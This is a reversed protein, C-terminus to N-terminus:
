YCDESNFVPSVFCSLHSASVITAVTHQVTRKHATQIKLVPGNVPGTRLFETPNLHTKDQQQNLSHLESAGCGDHTAVSPVACVCVYISVYGITTHLVVERVRVLTYLCTYANIMERAHVCM